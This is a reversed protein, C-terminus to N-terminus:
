RQEEKTMTATTWENIVEGTQEQWFQAFMSRHCDKPDKEYCLLVLPKCYLAHIDELEARIAEIGTEALRSLYATTFAEGELSRLKYPTILRAVPLLHVGPWFRPLGVSTRVPMVDERPWAGWLKSWQGTFLTLSQAAQEEAWEEIIQEDTM